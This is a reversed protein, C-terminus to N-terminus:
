WTRIIGMIKEVLRENFEVTIGNYIVRVMDAPLEGYVPGDYKVITTAETVSGSLLEIQSTVNAFENGMKQYKLVWDNFTSDSIKNQFAFDSKSLGPEKEKRDLFEKVMRIKFEATYKKGLMERKGGDTGTM